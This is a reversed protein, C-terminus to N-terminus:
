SVQSRNRSLTPRTPVASFSSKLIPRIGRLCDREGGNAIRLRCIKGGPLFPPAAPAGATETIHVYVISIYHSKKSCPSARDKSIGHDLKM